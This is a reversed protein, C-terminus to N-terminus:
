LVHEGKSSVSRKGKASTHGLDMLSVQKRYKEDRYKRQEGEEKETETQKKKTKGKQKHGV